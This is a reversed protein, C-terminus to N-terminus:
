LSLHCFQLVNIVFWVNYDDNKTHVARFDSCVILCIESVFFQM